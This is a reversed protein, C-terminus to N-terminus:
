APVAKLPVVNFDPHKTKMHRAMDSFTRKCCPCTGAAARIKHRKLDAVARMRAREAKDKERQAEAAEETLRANEQELRQRKRREVVAENERIVWSHGLPCFIQHGTERAQRDLEAPIAHEISCWCRHAVLTM